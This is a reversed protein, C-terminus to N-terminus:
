RCKLQWLAQMIGLFRGVSPAKGTAEAKGKSRAVLFICKPKLTAIKRATAQGIGRAAGTIIATRTPM